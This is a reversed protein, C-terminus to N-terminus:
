IISVSLDCLQKFICLIVTKVNVRLYNVNVIAM